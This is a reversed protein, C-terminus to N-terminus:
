NINCDCNTDCSEVCSKIRQKEKYFGYFFFIGALGLALIGIKELYLSLVTLSSIGAITGIIPLACCAGCLGISIWGIKKFPESKIKINKM